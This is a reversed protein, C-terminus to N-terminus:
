RSGSLPSARPPSLAWSSLFCVSQQGPSICICFHICSYMYLHFYLYLYESFYVTWSTITIIVIILIMMIIILWVISCLWQDHHHFIVREFCQLAQSKLLEQHKETLNFVYNPELTLWCFNFRNYTTPSSLTMVRFCCSIATENQLTLRWRAACAAAAATSSNRHSLRQINSELPKQRRVLARGVGYQVYKLYKKPELQEATLQLPM